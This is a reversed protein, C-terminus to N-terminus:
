PLPVTELLPPCRHELKLTDAILKWDFAGLSGDNNVAVFMGEPFNGFADKTLAIGDTNATATGSFTGLHELTARDFIQFTNDDVDQDVCIYYGSGDPCSYIVIGEPQYQFVGTGLMSGSFKGEMDYIKVDNSRQQEDAILIRGRVTDVCISEVNHLVGDGETAGFAQLFTGTINKGDILLSFVKVRRGLQEDPPISEDPMEYNDTVYLRYGISDRSVAISYPKILSSDGFSGLVTWEPLRFVQLRHNDREVVIAYADVVAVSSPRSFQGPGSGNVGIARIFKGTAADHVLLRDTAKCVAILWHEGNPGHWITPSDVDDARNYDTMYSENIVPYASRDDPSSRHGKKQGGCAGLLLLAAVFLGLSTFKM